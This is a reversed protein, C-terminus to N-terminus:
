RPPSPPADRDLDEITAELKKVIERGKRVLEELTGIDVNPDKAVRIAEDFWKTRILEEVTQIDVNPDKAVRIAEDFWKIGENIIPDGRPLLSARVPVLLPPSPHYFLNLRVAVESLM